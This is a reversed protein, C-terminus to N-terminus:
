MQVKRLDSLKCIKISAQLLYFLDSVAIELRCKIYQLFTRKDLMYWSVIGAAMYSPTQNTFIQHWKKCYLDSRFSVVKKRIWHLGLIVSNATCKKITTNTKNVVKLSYHTLKLNPCSLQLVGSYKLVLSLRPIVIM